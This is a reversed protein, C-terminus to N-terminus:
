SETCLRRSPRHRRLLSYYRRGVLHDRLRDAKSMGQVNLDVITCNVNLWSLVILLLSSASLAPEPQVTGM